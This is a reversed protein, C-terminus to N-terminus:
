LSGGELTTDTCAHGSLVARVSSAIRSRIRGIARALHQGIVKLYLWVPHTDPGNVDGKEMVTGTFGRSTVFAKIEDAHGPERRMFQNCPMIVIELGRM